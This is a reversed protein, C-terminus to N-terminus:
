FVRSRTQDGMRIFGFGFAEERKQLKILQSMFFLLMLRRLMVSFSRSRAATVAPAMVAVIRKIPKLLVGMLLKLLSLSSLESRQGSLWGLEFEFEAAAVM